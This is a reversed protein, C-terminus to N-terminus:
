GRRWIHRIYTDGTGAFNEIESYAVFGLRECWRLAAPWDARATAAIADFQRQEGLWRKVARHVAVPARRGEASILAWATPEDVGEALVGACVLPRHRDDLGTFAPGRDRYGDLFAPLYAPSIPLPDIDAIDTPHFPVVRM